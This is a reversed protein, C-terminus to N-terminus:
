NINVKIQKPKTEAKKPLTIKLVGDKYEANIKEQDVTAPLTFSRSFTGYSRELRHYNEEQTEKEFKREGKLTLTNNELRIDIDKERIEPLEAKLVIDQETEYIDVAPSWSGSDLSEETTRMRGFREDFLRNMREQLTILDRFPEWRVIAM